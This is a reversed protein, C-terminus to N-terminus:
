IHLKPAKSAFVYTANQDDIDLIFIIKQTQVHGYISVGRGQLTLTSTKYIKKNLCDNMTTNDRSKSVEVITSIEM